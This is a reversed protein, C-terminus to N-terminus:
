LDEIAIAAVQGGHLLIEFWKGNTGFREYVSLFTTNAALSDLRGGCPSGHSVRCFSAKIAEYANDTESYPQRNAPNYRVVEHTGVDGMLSLAATFQRVCGDGFGRIYHPRPATSNPISDFVDYGSVSAIRTGLNSPADCVTAIEGFPLRTGFPVVQRDPGDPSPTAAGATRGFGFLSGLTSTEAAGGAAEVVEAVDDADPNEGTADALAEEIAGAQAVPGDNSFAGFLSSFLGGESAPAAIAVADTDSDVDVDSLREVDDLPNSAPTADGMLGGIGSCAGLLAFAAVTATMRMM